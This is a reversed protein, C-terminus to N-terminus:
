FSTFKFTTRQVIQYWKYLKFFTFFVWSPTHIKTFNCAKTQFKVLILLGGHTNKVNKLKYWHYWIACRMAFIRSLFPLSIFIACRMVFILSLFPSFVRKSWIYPKWFYWYQAYFFVIWIKVEEMASQSLMPRSIVCVKPRANWVCPWAKWVRQRSKSFM